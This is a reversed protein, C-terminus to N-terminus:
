VLRNQKTSHLESLNNNKEHNLSYLYPIYRVNNGLKEIYKKYEIFIDDGVLVNMSVAKIKDCIKNINLNIYRIIKLDIGFILNDFYVYIMDGYFYSTINKGSLIKKTIKILTRTSMQILDVYVYKVKTILTQYALLIFNHLDEEMIDRKENLKFTWYLKDSLKRNTIDYDPYNTKVYHWGIILTPLGHIIEDMTKVMNFEEPVTINTKSVINGVIM